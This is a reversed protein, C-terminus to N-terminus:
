KNAVEKFMHVYERIIEDNNIRKRLYIYLENIYSSFTYDDMEAFYDVKKRLDEINGLEYLEGGKGDIDDWPTTGRPIICPCGNSLAEAISHGYNETVTPFIFCESENFIEEIESPDAIGKYIVSINSPLERIIKECEEWYARDEIAGYVQYKVTHKVNRLANLAEKLNKSTCIRALYVANLNNEKKAVRNGKKIPRSINPLQYIRENPISLYKKLGDTENKATTHFFCKSYIKFKNLLFLYPKKKYSKIEIANECIEGRPPVIIPINNKKCARIYILNRPALIGGLYVVKPSVERIWKDVNKYTFSKDEVYLVNAQGVKMWDISIGPFVSSDGYDHNAVIIYFELEQSCNEVLNYISTAPGGYNKAPLYYGNFILVKDRM